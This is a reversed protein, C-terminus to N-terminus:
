RGSRSPKEGGASKTRGRKETQEALGPFTATLRRRVPPIRAIAFGAIAAALMTWSAADQGAVTLLLFAMAVVFGVASTIRQQDATMAATSPMAGMWIGAGLSLAGAGVATIITLTQPNM